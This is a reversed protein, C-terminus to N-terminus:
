QKELKEIRALLEKLLAQQYNITKQQESITKEQNNISNQQEQIAKTLVPILSTYTIGLTEGKKLDGEKGTVVEPILPKVDQAIFGIQELGNSKLVYDVPELKMVEDLGYKTSKIEQKLRRDSANTFGVQGYIGVISTNGLRITNSATAIADYGIATANRLNNDSANSYSGLFANLHPM